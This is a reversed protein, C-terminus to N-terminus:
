DRWAFASPAVVVEKQIGQLEGGSGGNSAISVAGYFVACEFTYHSAVPQVIPSDPNSIRRRCINKRIRLM